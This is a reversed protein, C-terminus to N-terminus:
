RMRCHIWSSILFAFSVGSSSKTSSSPATQLTQSPTYALPRYPLPSASLFLFGLCLPHITRFISSLTSFSFFGRAFFYSHSATDLRGAQDSRDDELHRRRAIQIALVAVDVVVLIVGISISRAKDAVLDEIRREVVDAVIAGPA